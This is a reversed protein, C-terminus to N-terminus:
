SQGSALLITCGLNSFGTTLRPQSPPYSKYTRYPKYKKYGKYPEHETRSLADKSACAVEGNHDFIIGNMFWGLHKGNFGYVHPGGDKENDVYAVPEGNWLYITMDEAPSLYAVPKGSPEFLNFEIDEANAIATYFFLQGLLVFSFLLNRM